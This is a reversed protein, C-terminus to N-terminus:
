LELLGLSTGNVIDKGDGLYQESQEKSQFQAQREKISM